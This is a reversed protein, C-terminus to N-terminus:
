KSFTFFSKFKQMANGMADESAMIIPNMFPWPTLSPHAIYNFKLLKLVNLRLGIAFSAVEASAILGSGFAEYGVLRLTPGAFVLKVELPKKAAMDRYIDTTQARGVVVIRYRKRAAAETLGASAYEKGAAKFAFAGTSGAYAIPYGAIQFGVIKAQQIASSALSSPKHEGTVASIPICCDGCAFIDKKNTRMKRDVLIGAKGAKIGTGKIIELNPTIGAAVVVFDVAVAEQTEGKRIIVETTKPGTKRIEVVQSDFMTRVGQKELNAVIMDAFEKDAINESIEKAYEVLVVDAGRAKLAAAMEIGIVGAGIVLASKSKKLSAQIAAADASTRVSYVNELDIGPIQPKAPAAGTSIVLYDYMFANGKDTMVTKKRTDISVAKEHVIEFGYETFMSEPQIAEKLKAEGSVAYPTTCRCYIDDEDSLVTTKFKGKKLQAPVILSFMGAGGCGIALIKKM